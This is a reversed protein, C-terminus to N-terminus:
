AQLAKSGAPLAESGDPLAEFGAPLAGFGALLAESGVPLGWRPRFFFFFSLSFLPLMGPEQYTTTGYTM